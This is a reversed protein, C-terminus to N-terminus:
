RSRLWSGLVAVPCALVNLAPLLSATYTLRIDYKQNTSLHKDKIDLRIPQATRNNSIVSYNSCTHSNEVVGVSAATEM